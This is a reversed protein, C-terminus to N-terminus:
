KKRKFEIINHEDNGEAKIKREITQEKTIKNTITQYMPLTDKHIKLLMNRKKIQGNSLYITKGSVNMVTYIESSYQPDSGKKFLRKDLIRVKDGISLDSEIKNSKSKDINLKVITKKNIKQSAENPSLDNLSRHETNNYIRIVKDITDIWNSSKNIERQKTLIRKLTLAFRDIIGLSHHDGVPVVNHIINNNDFFEEIKRSLFTSDSDSIIMIPKNSPHLWSPTARMSKAEIANLVNNNDKNKM